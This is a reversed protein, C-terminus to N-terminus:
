PILIHTNLYDIFDTLADNFCITINEKEFTTNINPM